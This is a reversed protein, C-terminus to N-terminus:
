ESFDMMSMSGAPDKKLVININKSSDFMLVAKKGNLKWHYLEINNKKGDNHFFTKWSKQFKGTGPFNVIKIGPL